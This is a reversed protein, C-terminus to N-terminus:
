RVIRIRSPGSGIRSNGSRQLKQVADTFIAERSAALDPREDVRLKGLGIAGEVIAQHYRRPVIPTDAGAALETPSVAALINIALGDEVPTPFITIASNGATDFTGIYAGIYGPTVTAHGNRLNWLDEITGRAYADSNDVQLRAVDVIDGGLYYRGEGAVSPGISRQVKQYKSDEVMETYKTNVWSVITAPVVSSSTDDFGGEDRVAAVMEDLTM